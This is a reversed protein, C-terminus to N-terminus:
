PSIVVMKNKKIRLIHTALGHTDNLYSSRTVDLILGNDNITIQDLPFNCIENM